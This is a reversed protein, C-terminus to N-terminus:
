NSSFISNFVDKDYSFPYKARLEGIWQKELYNQYDATILGKIEAFLKPEPEVISNVRIYLNWDNEAPFPGYVGKKWEIADVDRNDGKVFKKRDLSVAPISDKNLSALIAEDATGKRLMKVLKKGAKADKLTFLSADLRQDWMYKTKNADYFKDLGATDKVAKTWVKRDTLDFLLIGDHYEGILAKFEPYENELQSDAYRIVNQNLFENFQYRLYAAMDHKTTKRQATVLFAAFDAQIYKKTGLVCITKSLDRDAPVKWSAAFISDTVITNMEDLAPQNLTFGFNNRAKNVFSRVVESSRDNKPIRQKIEEKEDDFKGSTKRDVLKIIHWGYATQFPESCDDKEKLKDINEIFEPLLRNVGFWPLVGGKDSTSKDDSFKKAVAGFDTGSMIQQYAINASDAVKLSDDLTANAPFALMIHALQVKGLAQLRNTVRILHYGFDTRVPMSVDGVKLNYVASEFPYVM